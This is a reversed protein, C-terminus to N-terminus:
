IVRVVYDQVFGGFFPGKGRVIIKWLIGKTNFDADRSHSSARTGPPLTFESQQIWTDGRAVRVATATLLTLDHLKKEKVKQYAEGDAHEAFTTQRDICVLRAELLSWRVPGPQVLAFKFPRGRDLTHSSVEVLTPPIQKRRFQYACTWLLLLGILIFVGSLINIVGFSTEIPLYHRGGWEIGIGVLTLILGLVLSFRLPVPSRPLRVPLVRPVHPAPDSFSPM